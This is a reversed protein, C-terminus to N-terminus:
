TPGVNRTEDTPTLIRIRSSKYRYSTLETQSIIEIDAIVNSKADIDQIAHSKDIVAVRQKATAWYRLHIKGEDDYKEAVYM